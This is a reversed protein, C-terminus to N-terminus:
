RGTRHTCAVVRLHLRPAPPLPWAGCSLGVARLAYEDAASVMLEGLNDWPLGAMASMSVFPATLAPWVSVFSNGLFVKESESRQRYGPIAPSLVHRWIALMGMSVAFSGMFSGLLALRAETEGGWITGLMLTADVTTLVALAAPPPM